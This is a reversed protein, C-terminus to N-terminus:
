LIGQKRKEIVKKALDDNGIDIQEKVEILTGIKEQIKEGQESDEELASYDTLLNNIKHTLINMAMESELKKM